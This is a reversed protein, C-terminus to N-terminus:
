EPDRGKAELQRARANNSNSAGFYLYLAEIADAPSISDDGNVNAAEEIFGNQLVGFYHYLIMIADAPTVSGDGNVDGLIIKQVNYDVDLTAEGAYKNQLGGTGLKINTVQLQHQGPTLGDEANLQVSFVEGSGSAINGGMMYAVVRLTENDVQRTTVVLGTSRASVVTAADNTTFGDTSKVEFQIGELADYNDTSVHLTMEGTTYAKDVSMNLYNPAFINGSVGVSKMRQEPDNSYIQMTTAFDGETKDTRVVTLTESSYSGVTLPMTQKVSYGEDLFAVRSINLPASGYNSITYTAEVDETVPTRGFALESDGDLLPSQIDITGGYQASLVNTSVGSLVATLVAKSPTLTVGYRGVLKVRFSGIAGDNGLLPKGAPSYAIIRLLRDKTVVGAVHDQKRDADLVFSGDVYELEAPLQFEVQFGIIDDMNNMGLAVEVETDSAGSADGVHLENVAFPQATLRITNLKSISNCVVTLTKQTKGRTTPAYTVDVNMSAGAAVVFPLETTSSFLLPDSFSLATVTLPENGINSVTVTQHYTSRIPVEGFDVMMTSYQAKACRITVTGPISSSCVTQGDTGTLTLKSPTLSIDTPSDGLKLRFTLLDGEGAAIATTSMSYVMVNLAGDKVGASLTMNALRETATASNAVYELNEDLPIGLQMAWIADTNTMSVTVTVEDGPAGSGGTITVMNDARVGMGFCLLMLLM